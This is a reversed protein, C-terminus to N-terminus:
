AVHPALDQQQHVYEAEPPPKIGCVRCSSVKTVIRGGKPPPACWVGHILNSYFNRQGDPTLYIRPSRASLVSVEGMTATTTAGFWAARISTSAARTTRTARTSRVLGTTASPVRMRSAVIAAIARLLSSFLIEMRALLSM